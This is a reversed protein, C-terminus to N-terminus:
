VCSFCNLMCYAQQLRASRASGMRKPDWQQLELWTVRDHDERAVKVCKSSFTVFDNRKKIWTHPNYNVM